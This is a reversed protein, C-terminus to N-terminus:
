AGPLIKEIGRSISKEGSYGISYDVVEGDANLFIVTPIPSIEYQDVMKQNKPDDVDVRMFNVKDGYRQSITGMDQELKKCPQCWSAYFDIVTPAPPKGGVGRDKSFGFLSALFRTASGTRPKIYEAPVKMIEQNAAQSYRSGRGLRIAIRLHKRANRYEKKRSYCVGSYYHYAAPQLKAKDAKLASLAQDFQSAKVLSEMKSVSAASTASAPAAPPSTKASVVAGQGNLGLATMLSLLVLQKRFKLFNM